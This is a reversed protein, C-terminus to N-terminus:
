PFCAGRWETTFYNEKRCGYRGYSQKRVRVDDKQGPYELSWEYLYEECRM